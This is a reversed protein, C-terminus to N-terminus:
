FFTSGLLFALLGLPYVIGVNAVNSGALNDLSEQTVGLGRLKGERRAAAYISFFTVMEPVSTIFGLIWGAIVPRIGLQEIVAATANGLFIGAITIAIM